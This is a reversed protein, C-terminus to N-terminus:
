GIFKLIYSYQRARKGGEKWEGGHLQQTVEPHARAEEKEVFDRRASVGSESRNPFPEPHRDLPGGLVGMSELLVPEKREDVALISRGLFSDFEEMIPHVLQAAEHFAGSPFHS